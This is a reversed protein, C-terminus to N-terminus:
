ILGTAIAFSETLRDIKDYDARNFGLGKESGYTKILLVRDAPYLTDMREHTRKYWRQSVDDIIRPSRLALRFYHEVLRHYHSM